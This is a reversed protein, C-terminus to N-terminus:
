ALPDSVPQVSRLWELGHEFVRGSYFDLSRRTRDNPEIRNREDDMADRMWRPVRVQVLDDPNGSSRNWRGGRDGGRDMHSAGHSAGNVDVTSDTSAVLHMATDTM